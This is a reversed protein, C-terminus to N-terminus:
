LREMMTLVFGFDRLQLADFGLDHLAEPGQKGSELIPALRVSSEEVVGGNEKPAIEAIGIGVVPSIEWDDQGAAFERVTLVDGIVMLVILREAVEEHVQKLMELQFHISKAGAAPGKGPLQVLRELVM